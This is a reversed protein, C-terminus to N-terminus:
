RMEGEGTEGTAEFALAGGVYVQRVTTAPECPDGSWIVFDALLGPRLRGIQDAVGLMDAAAATVMYLPDVSAGALQANFLLFRSRNGSGRDDGGSGVIWAVGARDLVTGPAHLARRYPDDAPAAAHDLAGLVVNVEAEAVIDALLYSETADELIMRLSYTEALQLANYIDASRTVSVRVPIQGDIARLVIEAAPNRAPRAPKKPKGEDERKADKDEAKGGAQSAEEQKDQEKDASAAPKEAEADPGDADSKKGPKKKATYAKLQQAYQALEQDYDELSQRYDVAARFQQEVAQYTKLREVPKRGSALDICLAAQSKLVQGFSEQGPQPSLRMVAGTGTVGALNGAGFYAATVGHQLAEVLQGTAFGDFADEARRTPSASGTAPEAQGLSSHADLLGPTITAGAADIRRALLPVQVDSGVAIIRDGKILLTGDEIVRGDMTLLRAHSIAVPRELLQGRVPVALCTLILCVGLGSLPNLPANRHSREM